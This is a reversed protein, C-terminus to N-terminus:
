DVDFTDQMIVRNVMLYLKVETVFHRREDGGRYHEATRVVDGNYLFLKFDLTEFLTTHFHKIKKLRRSISAVVSTRPVLGKVPTEHGSNTL